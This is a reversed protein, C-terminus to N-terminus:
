PTVPRTPEVSVPGKEVRRGANRNANKKSRNGNRNANKKSRNGNRNASKSANSESKSATKAPDRAEATDVAVVMVTGSTTM